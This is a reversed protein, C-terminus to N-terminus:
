KAGEDVETFLVAAADELSAVADRQSRRVNASVLGCRERRRERVMEPVAQTPCSPDLGTGDQVVPSAEDSIYVM